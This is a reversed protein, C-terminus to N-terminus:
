GSVSSLYLRLYRLRSMVSCFVTSWVAYSCCVDAERLEPTPCHALPPIHIRAKESPGQIFSAVPTGRKALSVLRLFAEDGFKVARKGVGKVKSTLVLVHVSPFVADLGCCPVIPFQQLRDLPAKLDEM